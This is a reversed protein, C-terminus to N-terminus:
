DCIYIVDAQIVTGQWFVTCKLDKAAVLGSALIKIMALPVTNFFPLSFSLCELLYHCPHYLKLHWKKLEM